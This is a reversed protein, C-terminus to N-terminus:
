GATRREWSAAPCSLPTESRCLAGTTPLPGAYTDYGIQAAQAHGNQPRRDSRGAIRNGGGLRAHRNCAAVCQAVAKTGEVPPRRPRRQAAYTGLHELDDISLAVIINDFKDGPEDQRGPGAWDVAGKMAVIWIPREPDLDFVAADPGPEFETTALWEAQTTQKIALEDPQEAQLGYSRAVAQVPECCTLRKPASQSRVHRSKHLACAMSDRPLAAAASWMGKDRMQPQHRLWVGRM